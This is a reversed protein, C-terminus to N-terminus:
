IRVYRFASLEAWQYQGDIMGGFQLWEPSNPHDCIRFIENWLHELPDRNGNPYLIFLQGAMERIRFNSLWPNYAGYWGEFPSSPAVSDTAIEQISESPSPKSIEPLTPPKEGRCRARLLKLAYDIVSFAQIPGNVLAVAAYGHDLDALTATSFGATEGGHGIHTAGDITMVSLGYGYAYGARFANKAAPYIMRAVSDENLVRGTKGKGRALIMRLVKAADEATGACSGEGTKWEYWPAPGLPDGIRFPTHDRCAQYGTAMKFREEHTIESKTHIMGLPEVITEWIVNPYPAQHIEELVYGLTRYGVNSYHFFRGPQADLPTNQLDLVHARSGPSPTFRGIIGGLHSLLHHGTIPETTRPQFWPLYTSITKEPNFRGTDLEHMLACATITKGFSGFEFTTCPDVKQRKAVNAFGLGVQFLLDNQDTVALAMGPM